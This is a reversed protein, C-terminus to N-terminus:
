VGEFCLIPTVLRVSFMKQASLRSLPLAQLGQKKQTKPM